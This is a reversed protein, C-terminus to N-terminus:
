PIFLFVNDTCIKIREKIECIFIFLFMMTKFTPNQHISQSWTLMNRGGGGSGFVYDGDGCVM